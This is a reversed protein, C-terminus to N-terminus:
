AVSKSSERGERRNKELELLVSTATDVADQAENVKERIEHALRQDRAAEPVQGKKALVSQLEKVQYNVLELVDLQLDNLHQDISGLLNETCLLYNLIPTMAGNENKIREKIIQKRKQDSGKGPM